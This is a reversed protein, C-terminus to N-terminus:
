NLCFLVQDNNRGFHSNGFFTSLLGNLLCRNIDLIKALNLFPKFTSLRFVIHTYCHRKLRLTCIIAQDNNLGFHLDVFFFTSLLESFLCHSIACGVNKTAVTASTLVLGM